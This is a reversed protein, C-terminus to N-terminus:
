IIANHEDSICPHEVECRSRERPTVSQRLLSNVSQSALTQLRFCLPFYVFGLTFRGSTIRPSGLHDSTIRPSGLRDSTSRPSGLCDSTIRPSGLHDSTIRPSGLHDSAIRAYIAEGREFHWKTKCFFRSAM